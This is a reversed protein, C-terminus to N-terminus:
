PHRGRGEHDARAAQHRGEPRSRMAGRACIEFALASSDVDHYAGDYLLVEFDIIPFGILSGTMATERFGKEIAPIYEKPINGGKIEDKFVFGSGREGPTVKVKVRGFQGTGGSQKKHTYDIDVPKGLYERYAVQPAGVNAEVKFERKMRDVIIDLHLEGM